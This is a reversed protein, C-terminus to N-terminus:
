LKSFFLRKAIGVVEAAEVSTMGLAALFRM